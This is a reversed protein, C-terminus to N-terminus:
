LRNNCWLTFVFLHMVAHTMLLWFFMTLLVIISDFCNNVINVALRLAHQFVPLEDHGHADNSFDIAIANEVVQASNDHKSVLSCLM